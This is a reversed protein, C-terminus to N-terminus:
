LGEGILLLEPGVIAGFVGPAVPFVPGAGAGVRVRMAPTGDPDLGVLHEGDQVYVHGRGDVVPGHSGWDPETEVSARWITKGASTLRAVSDWALAIWGGDLSEAFVAPREYSGLEQGDEAYFASREQNLSGVAALQARSVTPMLDAERLSTQWLIEGTPRVRCFGAGEYGSIAMSDDAYLAPPLLDYGFEGVPRTRDEHWLLLEGSVTTLLAEGASSVNPSPGSDDLGGVQVSRELRGDADFVLAMRGTTVLTRGGALATPLSHHFARGAAAESDAASDEPGASHVTPEFTSLDVTWALKGDRSLRSLRGHHTLRLSGDEALVGGNVRLPSDPPVAADWLLVRAVV